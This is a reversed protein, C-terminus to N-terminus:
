ELVRADPFAQIFEEVRDGVVRLILENSIFALPHGRENQALDREIRAAAQAKLLGTYVRNRMEPNSTALEDCFRSVIAEMAIVRARDIDKMGM